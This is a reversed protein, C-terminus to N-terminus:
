NILYCNAQSNNKFNSRNLTHVNLVANSESLATSCFSADSLRRSHVNPDLPRTDGHKTQNLLAQLHDYLRITSMYPRVFKQKSYKAISMSPLSQLQACLMPELRLACVDAPHLLNYVQRCKPRPPVSNLDDNLVRRLHLVLALPSGFLYLEHVEFSLHLQEALTATRDKFRRSLFHSRGTSHQDLQDIDSSDSISIRPQMPPCTAASAPRSTGALSIVSDDLLGVHSGTRSGAMSVGSALIGTTVTSAGASLVDYALLGGLFDGIVLVKGNFNAGAESQCFDNYQRQLLRCTQRVHLQYEPSCVSLLPLAHLPIHDSPSRTDGTASSDHAATSSNAGFSSLLASPAFTQFTGALGSTATPPEAGSVLKSLHQLNQVCIPPCSILSFHLRGNLTPYNNRLIQEITTRFTALDTKKSALDNGSDLVHGGHLVFILVSTPCPQPESFLSATSTSKRSPTAPCLQNSRNTQQTGSTSENSESHGSQFDESKSKEIM